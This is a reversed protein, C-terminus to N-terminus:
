RMMSKIKNDLMVALSYNNNKIAENLKKTLDAVSLVKQSKINKMRQSSDLMDMVTDKYERDEGFVKGTGEYENTDLLPLGNNISLYEKQKPVIALDVEEEYESDTGGLLKEVIDDSLYEAEGRENSLKNTASLKRFGEYRTGSMKELEDYPM